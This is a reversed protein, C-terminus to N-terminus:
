DLDDRTVKRSRVLFTEGEVVLVDECVCVRHLWSRGDEPAEGVTSALVQTYARVSLTGDGQPRIDMVGQWHRHRQGSEALKRRGERVSAVLGSRGRVPEPLTPVDFVADETFQEAWEEARGSDLIQMHRAYFSEM